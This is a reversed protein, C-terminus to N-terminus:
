INFHKENYIACLIIGLDLKKGFGQLKNLDGNFSCPICNIPTAGFIYSIIKKKLIKM